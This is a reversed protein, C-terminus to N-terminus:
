EKVNFTLTSANILSNARGYLDKIAGDKTVRERHKCQVKWEGASQVIFQARGNKVKSFLAFNHDQGFSTSDATIYSDVKPSANLPKGYFLVDFEVLDGVRVDSLDTKPIIELGYNTAKPEEWRGGLTVYSNAFAEYKIAVLVKKLDKIQDKSKLKLRTRDKKDVYHTYFTPKSSAEIKYVGKLSDKKLAVKRLGVDSNYIDFSKGKKIVEAVKREPAGLDTVEGDPDTIAYRQVMVRGNASNLTDDIPLTHGWGLGVTIHGPEHAFSEFSNVWLTHASLNTFTFSIAIAVLAAQKLIRM